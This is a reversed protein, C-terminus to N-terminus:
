EARGFLSFLFFSSFVFSSFVFCRIVNSKKFASMCFICKFKEKLLSYAVKSSNVGGGGETIARSFLIFCVVTGQAFEKLCVLKSWELRQRGHPRSAM